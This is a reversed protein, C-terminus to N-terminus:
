HIDSIHIKGLTLFMMKCLNNRVELECIHSIKDEIALLTVECEYIQSEQCNRIM